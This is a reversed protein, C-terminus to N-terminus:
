RVNMSSQMLEFDQTEIEIKTLHKPYIGLCRVECCWNKMSRLVEQVQEETEPEFELFTRYRWQKEGAVILPRNEIHTINIERFSLVSLAKFLTGPEHKLVIAIMCKLECLGYASLDLPNRSFIIFRTAANKDDGINSEIIELGNLEACRSSCVCALSSDKTSAVLTAAQATGPALGRTLIVDTEKELIDFYINCAELIRTHSYITRIDSKPTGPLGCLCLNTTEVWDGIIRVDKRGLQDLTTDIVGSVSNEMPVCGLAHQGSSVDDFVLDISKQPYKTFKRYDLTPHSFLFADFAIQTYSGPQGVYVGSSINDDTAEIAAM